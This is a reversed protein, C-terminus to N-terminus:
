RLAIRRVYSSYFKLFDSKKGRGKATNFYAKWYRAMEAITKPLKEPVRLYHIRAM